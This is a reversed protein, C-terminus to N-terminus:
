CSQLLSKTQGYKVTLMVQKDTPVNYCTVVQEM